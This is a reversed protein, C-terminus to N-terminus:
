AVSIRIGKSRGKKAADAPPDECRDGSSASPGSEAARAALGQTAYYYSFAAAALAIAAALLALRLSSASGRFATASYGGPRLGVL